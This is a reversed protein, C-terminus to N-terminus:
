NSLKCVSQNVSVKHDRMLCKLCYCTNQGVMDTGFVLEDLHFILKETLQVHFLDTITYTNIINQDALANLKTLTVNCFQTITSYQSKFGTTPTCEALTAQM